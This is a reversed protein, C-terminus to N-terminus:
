PIRSRIKSRHTLSLVAHVSLLAAAAAGALGCSIVVGLATSTLGITALYAGSTVGITSTTVSRLFATVYLLRRDRVAAAIM